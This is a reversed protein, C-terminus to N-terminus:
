PAPEEIDVRILRYRAGLEFREFLASDDIHDNQHCVLQMAGQLTRLVRDPESCPRTDIASFRYQSVRGADENGCRVANHTVIESLLFTPGIPANNSATMLHQGFTFADNRPDGPYVLPQRFTM